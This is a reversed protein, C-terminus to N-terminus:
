VSVRKKAICESLGEATVIARGEFEAAPRVCSLMAEGDALVACAGCQEFGCGLKAGTLGLQNRLVLLLPTDAEAEVEHTADNVQLTMRAM